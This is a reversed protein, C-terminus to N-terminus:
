GYSWQRYRSLCSGPRTLRQDHASPARDRVTSEKQRLACPSTVMRQCRQVEIWCFLLCFTSFSILGRVQSSMMAKSIPGEVNHADGLLEIGGSTFLPSAFFHFPSRHPSISKFKDPPQRPQWKGASRARCNKIWCWVVGCSVRVM